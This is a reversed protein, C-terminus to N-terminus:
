SLQLKFFFHDAAHKQDSIHINIQGIELKTMQKRNIIQNTQFNFLHELKLKKDWHHIILHFISDVNMLSYGINPIRIAISRFMSCSYLKNLVSSSCSTVKLPFPSNLIPSYVYRKYVPHDEYNHCVENKFKLLLLSLVM